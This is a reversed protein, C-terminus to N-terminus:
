QNLWEDYVDEAEYGPITYYKGDANSLFAPIMDETSVEDEPYVRELKRTMPNRSIMIIGPKNM